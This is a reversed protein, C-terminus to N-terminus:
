CQSGLQPLASRRDTVPCSKRHSAPQERDTTLGEGIPLRLRTM